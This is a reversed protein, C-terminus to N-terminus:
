KEPIFTRLLLLPLHAKVLEEAPRLPLELPLSPSVAVMSMPRQLVPVM